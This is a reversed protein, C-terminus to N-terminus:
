NQWIYNPNWTEGRRLFPLTQGLVRYGGKVAARVLLRPDLEPYLQRAFTVEDRMDLTEASAVSDTGLAINVGAAVFDALPFRGCELHQNSRPCSIVTCGTRAVRQIDEGSVNVMHVLAPKHELVGLEDLYRVPTLDSTPQRGIVEAFHDPVRGFRNEWLPGQGTAFLEVESPHEAVHIQMPLGEAAAYETVLKMLRHSLTYSAHPSIGINLNTHGTAKQLKRWKEINARLAEFREKADTPDPGLVEAYLTGRMNKYQLLTEMVESTWVIDGVAATRYKNLLAVGLEAGAVGRKDRQEMAVEPIWRFYPLATFTYASMDLHTHANVPRPGIIGNVHQVQAEPYQRQLDQATGTAVITSKSVVVGASWQPLGMGSYLMDCTYLVYAVAQSNQSNSSISSPTVADTQFLGM